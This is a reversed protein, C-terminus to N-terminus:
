DDRYVLHIISAGINNGFDTAQFAKISLDPQVKGVLEAANNLTLHAERNLHVVISGNAELMATEGRLSVVKGLVRVTKNAFADLYKANIRPTADSAM